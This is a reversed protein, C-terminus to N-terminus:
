CQRMGVVAQTGELSAPSTMSTWAEAEHQRQASRCASLHNPPHQAQFAKLNYSYTHLQSSLIPNNLHDM